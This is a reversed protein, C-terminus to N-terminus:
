DGEKLSAVTLTIKVSKRKLKSEMFKFKFYNPFDREQKELKYNPLNTMEDDGIIIVKKPKNLSQNVEQFPNIFSSVTMKINAYDTGFIIATGCINREDNCIFYDSEGAVEKVFDGIKQVDRESAFLQPLLHFIYIIFMLPLIIKASTKLANEKVKFFYLASIPFLSFFMSLWFVGVQSNAIIIYFITALFPLFSNILLFAVDFGFIRPARAEKVKFFAILFPICFVFTMVVLRPVEYWRMKMSTSNQNLYAFAGYNEARIISIIYPTLTALFVLIGLYLFPSKFLARGEKTIFITLWLCGILIVASYKILIAIGCLFGVIIFLWHKSRAVALYFFYYISSFLGFNASNANFKTYFLHVLIGSCFVVSLLAKKEDRLIERSLLFVFFFLLAQHLPTLAKYFMFSGGGLKVSLYSVWGFFPPHKDSSFDMSRGWLLNEIMDNSLTISSISLLYILLFQVGIILWLKKAETM